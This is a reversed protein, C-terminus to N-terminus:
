SKSIETKNKNKEYFYFPLGIILLITGQLSIMLGSGVIAFLSFILAGLTIIWVSWGTKIGQNRDRKQLVLEALASTVYPLITVLTSLLILTKFAGMLGDSFNMVVLLSAIFASIIIARAPVGGKNLTSFSSPFLNDQALAQPMVSGVFINANINSIISILAGLTILGAGWPGLVVVAADALPSTSHALQESPILGMAGYSVAIYVGTVTLTGIILARPINKEPTIMDDSPITVSEVGLYAWMIIMVMEALSFVTPSEFSPEPKANIPDGFFLGIAAILFLPLLKLLSTLLQFTSATKVGAVNIATTIWIILLATIAGTIPDSSIFPIFFGLYGSVAVAGAAISTLIGIWYGWGILYGPLDGFAARTYAYPGGVLAKRRALLSFMLAIFITGVGAFIWGLLSFKGYPALVAPLMFIGSGIMVGVVIGWCRWFGMVKKM